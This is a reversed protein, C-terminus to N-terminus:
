AFGRFSLLLRSVALALHLSKSSIIRVSDVLARLDLLLLPALLRLGLKIKALRVSYAVLPVLLPLKVLLQLQLNVLHELVQLVVQAQQVSYDVQQVQHELQNPVSCVVEQHVQQNVSHPPHVQASHPRQHAKVSDVESGLQPQLLQREAKPTIKSVSNRLLWVVISRLLPCDSLVLYMDAPHLTYPLLQPLLSLSLSFLNM